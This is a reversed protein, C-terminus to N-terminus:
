ADHWDLITRAVDPLTGLQRPVELGYVPVRAVLRAVREMMLRVETGGLLPAIRAHPLVALTASVSTLAVRRVTGASTAGVKPILVYLAALPAPSSALEEERLTDIVLKESDPEPRAGDLRGLANASDDWLRASRLGPTATVTTELRVRLTDDTLMPAGAAVLSLALTSKGWGNAGLFALARGRHVVASAHLSLDGQAHLALSLVRGLLDVRAIESTVSRAPYWTIHGGDASVDFAGTDDFSLRFGNAGRELRVAVSDVLREEGLVVPDLLPPRVRGIRFTWNARTAHVEHLEPLTMESRIIGGYIEYEAMHDAVPPEWGSM